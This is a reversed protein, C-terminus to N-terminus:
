GKVSGVTLGKVFFRQVFPYLMIIPLTTLLIAASKITIVTTTKEAAGAGEGVAAAGQVINRLILM